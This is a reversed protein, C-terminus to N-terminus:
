SPLFREAMINKDPLGAVRAAQEVAAVLGPPGCLYADPPNGRELDLALDRAFLDAPSGVAGSWGPEPQWLCPIVELTPLQGALDALDDLSFLDTQSNVGFYLKSPNTEGFEAMWRLMSLMPALGTGGAIFRRPALSGPRLGFQGKPGIVTLTGGPKAGDRLWTSFAGDPRLRILFELRGDWNPANALSYARTMRTGPIELEMFQGPEFGPGLDGADDPLLELVLRRVQGGIDDNALIRAQREPPPGATLRATEADIALVLDSRPYTQCLLVGGQARADVPLAQDSARPMDFRGSECQGRCAGCTGSRCSAPITIGAQAAADIIPVTEPCDFSLVGGELTKLQIHHSLSMADRCVFSFVPRPSFLPAGPGTGM